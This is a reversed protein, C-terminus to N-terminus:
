RGAERVAVIRAMRAVLRVPDRVQLETVPVVLWGEGFLDLNRECDAAWDPLTSHHVYSQAEFATSVFPYAVDPYKWRGDSLQVPYEFFPEPLRGDKYAMLAIAELRRQLGSDVHRRRGRREELLESLAGAGRRGVTGLAELRDALLALPVRRRALVHDVL